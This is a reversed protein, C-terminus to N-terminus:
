RTKARVKAPAPPADIKGRIREMREAARRKRQAEDLVRQQEDLHDLAERRETRAADVCATVVFRQRCEGEREAYRLKVEERERAIRDREARSDDAAAAAANAAFVMLLPLAHVPM